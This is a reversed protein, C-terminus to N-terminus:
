SKIEKEKKKSSKTEFLNKEKQIKANTKAYLLFFIKKKFLSTNLQNKFRTEGCLFVNKKLHAMYFLYGYYM